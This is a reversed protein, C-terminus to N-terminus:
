REYNLVELPSVIRISHLFNNALNVANIRAERNVNALHRFNWSLLIDMENVVAIAVHYADPLKSRPIVGNEIYLQALHNIEDSTQIDVLSLPYDQLVKLLDNRKKFDETAEIEAIVINSIYVDYIQSKVFDDFFDRTNDRKEPSDDAHFFSVVSTDLYIKLQRM